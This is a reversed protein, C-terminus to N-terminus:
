RFAWQYILLTRDAISWLLVTESMQVGRGLVIESLQVGRGIVNVKKLLLQTKKANIWGAIKDCLESTYLALRHMPLVM